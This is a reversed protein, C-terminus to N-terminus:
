HLRRTRITKKKRFELKKDFLYKGHACLNFMNIFVTKKFVRSQINTFGKCQVRSKETMGEFSELCFGYM